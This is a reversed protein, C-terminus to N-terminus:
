KLKLITFFDVQNLNLYCLKQNSFVVKAGKDLTKANKNFSQINENIDMLYIYGTNYNLQYKKSYFHQNQIHKYLNINNFFIFFLYHQVM